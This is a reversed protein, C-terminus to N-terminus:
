GSPARGAAVPARSRARAWPASICRGSAWARSERERFRSGQDLIAYPQARAAPLVHDELLAAIAEDAAMEGRGPREGAAAAADPREGPRLNWVFRRMAVRFMAEVFESRTMTQNHSSVNAAVFVVDLDAAECGPGSVDCEHCFMRWENWQIDFPNEDAGCAAYYCQLLRLEGYYRQLVRVVATQAADAEGRYRGRRRSTSTSVRRFILSESLSPM